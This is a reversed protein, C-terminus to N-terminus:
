RRWRDLAVRDAAEALRVEELRRRVRRQLRRAVAEAANLRGEAGGLAQAAIQRQTEATEFADQQAGVVEDSRTLAGAFAESLGLDLRAASLTGLWSQESAALDARASELRDSVVRRELDAVQLAAESALREVERIRVVAAMGAVKREMARM